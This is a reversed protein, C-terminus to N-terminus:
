KYIIYIYNTLTCNTSCSSFYKNLITQPVFVFEVFDEIDNSKYICMYVLALRISAKLILCYIVLYPYFYMFLNKCCYLM